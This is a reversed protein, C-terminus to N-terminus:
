IIKSFATDVNTNDLASTEIFALGHKEAYSSAEEMKVARLHKLDIKNGVVMIVIFPESHVKM